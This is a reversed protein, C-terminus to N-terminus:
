KVNNWTMFTMNQSYSYNHELKPCFANVIKLGESKEAYKIPDFPKGCDKIVVLIEDDVVIKLDYYTKGTNDGFEIINAILEECCMRVRLSILKEIDFRELFADIERLSDVVADKNCPVSIDLSNYEDKPKILLSFFSREEPSKKRVAESILIIFGLMLVAAVPFGLWMNDPASLLAFGVIGLGTFIPQAVSIIPIMKLEGAIAYVSPMGWIVTIPLIYLLTIRVARTSYALLAAEKAGMMMCLSPAFIMAIGVLICSFILTITLGLKFLYNVGKYDKQGVLMGGIANISMSVGASVGQCLTTAQGIVSVSFAGNVGCFLQACISVIYSYAVTSLTISAISVGYKLNELLVKFYNKVKTFKFPSGEKKWIVAVIIMSVMASLVTAFAAGKTGFDFVKVFIVDGVINTILTTISAITVLKPKGGVDAYNVLSGSLMVFPCGLFYIMLYNKVYNIIAEERCLIGAIGDINFAGILLAIVGVVAVSSLAVTYHENAKQQDRAGLSISSCVCAGAYFFQGFCVIIGVLPLCLSVASFAYADIFWGMLVSDIISNLTAVLNAAIAAFLYKRLAVSVLFNNRNM